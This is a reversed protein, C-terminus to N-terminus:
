YLILHLYLQDERMEVIQRQLIRTSMRHYHHQMTLVLIQLTDPLQSIDKVLLIQPYYSYTIQAVINLLHSPDDNHHIM